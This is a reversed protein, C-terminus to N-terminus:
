LAQRCELWIRYDLYLAPCLTTTM